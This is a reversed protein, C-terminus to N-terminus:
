LNQASLLPTLLWTAIFAGLSMKIMQTTVHFVRAATNSAKPTLVPQTHPSLIATITCFSYAPQAGTEPTVVSPTHTNTYAHTYIASRTRTCLSMQTLPTCTSCSSTLTPLLHRIQLHNSYFLCSFNCCFISKIYAEMNNSGRFFMMMVCAPVCVSVRYDKKACAAFEFSFLPPLDFLNRLFPPSLSSLSHVGSCKLQLSLSFIHDIPPVQICSGM